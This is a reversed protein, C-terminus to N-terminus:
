ARTEHRCISFQSRVCESWNRVGLQCYGTYNSLVRDFLFKIAKEVNGFDNSCRRFEKIISLIINTPSGKFIATPGTKFYREAGGTIKPLRRCTKRLRQFGETIKPLRRFDKAIKPFRWYIKPFEYKSSIFFRVCKVSFLQCTYTLEM